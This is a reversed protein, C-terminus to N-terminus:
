KIVPTNGNQIYGIAANMSENSTTIIIYNQFFGYVFSAEQGPYDFHRINTGLYEREKFIKTSTTKPSFLWVDLTNKIINRNSEWSMFDTKVEEIANNNIQFVLGLAPHVEGYFSYILYKENLNNVLSLPANDIFANLIESSSMYQDKIKPTIVKFEGPSLLSNAETKIQNVIEPSKSIDINLNNLQFGTNLALFPSPKTTTVTTISTAPSLLNNQKTKISVNPTLMKPRIVFMFLLVLIIAVILIALLIIIKNKGKGNSPTQEVSAIPSFEEPMILDNLNGNLHSSLNNVNTPVPKPEPAINLQNIKEKISDITTPAPEIPAQIPEVVTNLNSLNPTEINPVPMEVNINPTSIPQNTNIPNINEVVPPVFGNNNIPNEVYPLAEGGNNKLNNLDTNMTRIYVNSDKPLFNPDIQNGAPNSVDQPNLNIPNNPDIM